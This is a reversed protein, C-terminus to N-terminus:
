EAGQGPTEGVATAEEPWRREAGGPGNATGDADGDDAAPEPDASGAVDATGPSATGGSAGCGCGERLVEQATLQENCEPCVVTLRIYVDVDGSEGGPGDAARVEAISKKSVQELRRKLANIRDLADAPALTDPSTSRERGTCNKFHRDITRYSVFDEVLKDADIGREDLRRRARSREAEEVGDGTLLGYLLEAEGELAPNGSQLLAAGIVGRNFQRALRRLGPGDDAEWQAGLDGDLTEECGYESAVRGAKCCDDTDTSM